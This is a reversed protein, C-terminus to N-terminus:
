MMKPPCLSFMVARAVSVGAPVAVLEDDEDEPVELVVDDESVPAVDDTEELEFVAAVVDSVAVVDDAADDAELEDDEEDESVSYAAIATITIM